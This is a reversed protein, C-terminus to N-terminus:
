FRWRRTLFVGFVSKQIPMQPALSPEILMFRQQFTSELALGPFRTFRHELRLGPVKAAIVGQAGIFTQRTWYKGFEIQTTNLFNGFDPRWFEVPVDAPTINFVDAGLSRAAETEVENVLVGLAVGTLQRSAYAAGAGFLGGTASQGSTSSGSSSGFQLLSSSESGFAVFSILDSQPIPPRADSELSIRPSRLTGGIVVRITLPQQVGRQVNYEAVLQLMPNLESSGFFTVAGQRLDFRRSLFTYQGRDTLVVGEIALSEQRRNVAVRLDGDTYIEVNAEQSRVWTDRDVALSLNMRMNRLLPSQSPLLEEAASSATDVVNFLAPDNSSIVEKGDSPPIYFV